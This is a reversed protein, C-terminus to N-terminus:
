RSSPPTAVRRLTPPFTTLLHLFSCRAVAALFLPRLLHPPLSLLGCLMAKAAETDQWNTAIACEGLQNTWTALAKDLRADAVSM